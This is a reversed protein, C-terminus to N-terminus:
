KLNSLYEVLDAHKATAHKYLWDGMDEANRIETSRNGHITSVVLVVSDFHKRATFVMDHVEYRAVWGVFRSQTFKIKFRNLRTVGVSEFAKLLLCEAKIKDDLQRRKAAIASEEMFYEFSDMSSFM